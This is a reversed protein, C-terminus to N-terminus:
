NDKILKLYEEAIKNRDFKEEILIRAKKGAVERFSINCYLDYFAEALKVDDLPPSIIDIANDRILKGLISDDYVTAIVPLGCACYEFFKAPLANKWLPNNDYPILGVDAEAILNALETKESIVGKYEVNKSVGLQSAMSLVTDVEGAGVIILVADKAGNDIFRKLAKLVVDLRYYLGIGGSYFLRFQCIDKISM